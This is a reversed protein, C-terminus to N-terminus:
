VSVEVNASWIGSTLSLPPQWTIVTDGTNVITRIYWVIEKADGNWAYNISSGVSTGFPISVNLAPPEGPLVIPTVLTYRVTVLIYASTNASVTAQIGGFGSVLSKIYVGPFKINDISTKLSVIDAKITTLSTEIATVKTNLASLDTPQISGVQTKLAALETTLTTIQTKQQDISAQLATADFQKFGDVKIQLAALSETLTADAKTLNTKAENVATEANAIRSMLASTDPVNIALAYKARIDVLDKELRTVDSKYQTLSPSPSILRVVVFAMAGAILAMVIINSFDFGSKKKAASGYDDPTMPYQQPYQPPYQPPPQQQPQGQNENQPM